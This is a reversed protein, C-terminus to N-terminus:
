LLESFVYVDLGHIVSVFGVVGCVRILAILSM